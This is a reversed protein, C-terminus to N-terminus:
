DSRKDKAEKRISPPLFKDIEEDSFTYEELKQLARCSEQYSKSTTRPSLSYIVNLISQFFSRKCMVDDFTISRNVMDVLLSIYKERVDILIVAVRRHSEAADSINFYRVFSSVYITGFSLLLTLLKIVIQFIFCDPCFDLLTVLAGSATLSSLIIQCKKYWGIKRDLEDACKEHAKHTYIVCGLTQRIQDEINDFQSNQDM